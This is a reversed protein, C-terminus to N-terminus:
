GVDRLLPSVRPVGAHTRKWAECLVRLPAGRNVQVGWRESALKGPRFRVRAAIKCTKALHIRFAIVTAHLAIEAGVAKGFRLYLSDEDFRSIVERAAIQLM